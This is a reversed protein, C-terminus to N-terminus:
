KLASLRQIMTAVLPDKCFVAEREQVWEVYSGAEGATGDGVAEVQECDDVNVAYLHMLNDSSKSPRVTGLQKLKGPETTFGGEEELERIACEHFTEGEKDYGGTISCLEADDSHAPCIEYRGLYERAYIRGRPDDKSYMSDQGVVIDRYCLIAIGLGGSWPAHSYIYESDPDKLIAKKVELWRNQFITETKKIM